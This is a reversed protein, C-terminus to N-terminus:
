EFDGSQCVGTYWRFIEIETERGRNVGDKITLKRVLPLALRCSAVCRLAGEGEGTVVKGDDEVLKATGFDTVKIRMASDLLISYVDELDARAFLARPLFTFTSRRNSIM